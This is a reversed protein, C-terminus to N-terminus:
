NKAKWQDGSPFLRPKNRPWVSESTTNILSVACYCGVNQMTDNLLVACYCGVDKGDYREPLSCLLSWVEKWRTTGASEV